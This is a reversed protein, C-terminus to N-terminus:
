KSKTGKTGNSNASLYANIDSLKIRWNRGVKSALIKEGNILKLVTKDTVKLYTATQAVTLIEDNMPYLVGLIGM